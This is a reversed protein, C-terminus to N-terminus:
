PQGREQALLLFATELEKLKAAARTRATEMPEDDNLTERHEFYYKIKPETGSPRVTIRAGTETTYSLVNSPPLSLKSTTGEEVSTRERYDRRVRIAHAGVKSPPRSRFAEMISAITALGEAGPLTFNVQSAVYLGYSRQIRELYGLVTTGQGACWAALDAFVLAAGIGDKDRAVTGVTYGLAEEYGFLFRAGDSKELEMARNAIWKFGTLTEDYKANFAKAIEGLQSSSVITTLVAPPGKAGGRDQSLLYHGLLVGVENGTLAVLKGAADRALVALRDADPDNALVLDAGVKEALAISLDMAGPEEPNPFRVTPFHGDPEQQEPVPHVRTFGARKMAEVVWRGGVGHMASYVITLADQDRRHVRLDQLASHYAEITDQGVARWLGRSAAEGRAILAVENAPEVQEIAAAIGKDHPPVIQAGNGWYVKYGNYEPPNHSATVMIGAAANLRIVTFATLPTPALDEFVHAPIGEAALVAAADEAFEASMLRGDRGIVVGRETVDPVTQKLYRALGATTRRVVARNMRNPGAGLIGRLGATGFELSMAFADSLSAASQADEAQLLAALEAATTPDPDSRQWTEALKRLESTDM